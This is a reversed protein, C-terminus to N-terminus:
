KRLAGGILNKKLKLIFSENMDSKKDKAAKRMSEEEDGDGDLDIYDPKADAEILKMSMANSLDTKVPGTEDSYLEMTKGDPNLKVFTVTGYQSSYKKGPKLDSAKMKNINKVGYDSDNSNDSPKMAKSISRVVSEAGFKDDIRALVEQEANPGKPVAIRVGPVIDGNPMQINCSYVVHTAASIKENSEMPSSIPQDAIQERLKTLRMDVNEYMDSEPKRRSNRLIANKLGRKLWKLSDIANSLQWFKEDPDQLTQNIDYTDIDPEQRYTETGKITLVNNVFTVSEYTTGTPWTSSPDVVDLADGDSDVALKILQNVEATLKTVLKIGANVDKMLDAYDEDSLDGQQEKLKAQYAATTDALTPLPKGAEREWAHGESLITKLKIM